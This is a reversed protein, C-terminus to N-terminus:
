GHNIDHLQNGLSDLKKLCDDVVKRYMDVLERLEELETTEEDTMTTIRKPKSNPV